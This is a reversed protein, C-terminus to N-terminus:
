NFWIRRFSNAITGKVIIFM